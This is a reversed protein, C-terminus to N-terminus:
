SSSLRRLLEIYEWMPGRIGRRRLKEMAKVFIPPPDGVAWNPAIRQEEQLRAFIGEVTFPPELFFRPELLYDGPAEGRGEPALRRWLPTGPYIRMGITGFFFAGPLQRTRALTEEMTSSTEGPGGFVIFHSYNLGLAHAEHSARMIEEHTFSKGYCRLVTDSLSDSGFEVHRLGAQKMLALLERTIGRPRLFCEWRIDIKARILAECVDVVHDTQLNFVSDVIFVYRVGLGALRGMEAAVEDGGRFRSCGGEIVPYTCYCCDL